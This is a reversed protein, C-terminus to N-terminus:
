SPCPPQRLHYPGLRQRGGVARDVVIGRRIRSRVPRLLGLRTWRSTATGTDKLTTVQEASLTGIVLVVPYPGAIDTDVGHRPIEYADITITATTSGTAGADTVDVVLETSAPVGVLLSAHAPTNWTDGAAWSQYGAPRTYAQTAVFSM